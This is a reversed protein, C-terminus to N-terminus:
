SPEEKAFLGLYMALLSDRPSEGAPVRPVTFVPRPSAFERVAEVASAHLAAESQQQRHLTELRDLFARTREGEEQGGLLSAARLVASEISGPGPLFAREVRNVIFARPVCDQDALRESL